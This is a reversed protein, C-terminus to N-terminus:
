ENQSFGEGFADKLKKKAEQPRGQEKLRRAERLKDRLESARRAAEQKQKSNMGSDVSEGYIPEETDHKVRSPLTEVFDRTLAEYSDPVPEGTRAKEEFYNYVMVEMAYGRVPTGSNEAWKKMSRSLGSVKGGHAQDRAEFRQKYARPNTGTWSPSDHTDPIAYGDSADDFISPNQKPHEAGPVESYRFAPVVEVTSDHYKVRVVNQDIEVETESFRPDNQIRRKVARLCNRPGEEQEVWEQHEDADLVLMVDADTDETLPGTVTNRTFSGILQSDEVALGHRVADEIVDRRKSIKEGQQETIGSDEVFEQYAEDVEDEQSAEPLSQQSDADDPRRGTQVQGGGGSSSYTGGM